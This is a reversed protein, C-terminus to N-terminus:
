VLIIYEIENRCFTIEIIKIVCDMVCLATWNDWCRTCFIWWACSCLMKIYMFIYIYLQLIVVWILRTIRWWFNLYIFFFFDKRNYFRESVAYADFVSKVFCSGLVPTTGLKSPHTPPQYIYVNYYNNLIIIYLLISYIIYM